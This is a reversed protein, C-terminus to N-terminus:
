LPTLPPRLNPCERIYKIYTHAAGFPRTKAVNRDLFRTYVKDIKTQFLTCNELSNYIPTCLRMQRKLELHILRHWNSISNVFYTKPMRIKTIIFYNRLSWTQLCTHFILNKKGTIPDPNLYALPSGWSFECSYWVPKRARFILRYTAQFGDSTGHLLEKPFGLCDQVRSEM